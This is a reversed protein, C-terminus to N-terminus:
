WCRIPIVFFNLFFISVHLYNFHLPFIINYHYLIIIIARKLVIFTCLLLKGLKCTHSAFQSFHAIEWLNSAFRLPALTGTNGAATQCTVYFTCKWKSLKIFLRSYRSESVLSFFVSYDWYCLFSPDASQYLFFAFM